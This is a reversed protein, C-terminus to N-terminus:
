AIAAPPETEVGRSKDPVVAASRDTGVPALLRSVAAGLRQELRLPRFAVVVGSVGAPCSADVAWRVPDSARADVMANPAARRKLRYVLGRRM